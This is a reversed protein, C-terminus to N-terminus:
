YRAIPEMVRREARFRTGFRQIGDGRLRPAHDRLYTDLAARDQLRYQTCLVLAGVEDVPEDREFIEASVFGPLQLIERVHADLWARFEPEVDRAVFLTVEYVIM